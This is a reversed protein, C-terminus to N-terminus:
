ATIAAVALNDSFSIALTTTQLEGVAAAAPLVPALEGIWWVRQNFPVFDICFARVLDATALCMFTWVVTGDTFTGSTTWTPEVTGSTGATTCVYYSSTTGEVLMAGLAYATEAVWTDTPDVPDAAAATTIAVLYESYNAEFERTGLDILGHKNRKYVLDLLDTCDVSDPTVNFDPTGTINPITKWYVPATYVGGAYPSIGYRLATGATIAEGAM